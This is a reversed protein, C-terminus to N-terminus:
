PACRVLVPAVVKGRLTGPIQCLRALSTAIVIAEVRDDALYGHVQRTLDSLSGRTKAEIAISGCMFDVRQRPGLTVERAFPIGERELVDAIADQLESETGFRLEYRRLAKLIADLTPSM